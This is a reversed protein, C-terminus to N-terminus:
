TGDQTVRIVEQLTTVGQKVKELGSQRLTKMGSAVAKAKIESATARGLILKQISDNLVLFEYIAERGSYGTGHCADCGEHEYIVTGADFLASEGFDKIMDATMHVAKKCQHCVRRVLRQAILCQVTSTILYSEVGMDLLRAIGSAADNTHLTSFILHGTLAVQIATTATEMDRVEGVMMIDPDHRLMSRLGQAFTLGIAPNIQVQTIGKLQYEIPDEITIIKHKDTNMRSLCTYLTTTKGSGTPGTLFIIGNPKETMQKLIDREEDSLGLEKLSYLKTTNLIRLVISEGCPTPLFSVRLDLDVSGVRVKFRGDQPLRKEAIDLNSLIKVRSSIADQFHRINKPVKADYMVGDIRYRVRLEDVFPEIHIDTANDKYAELLIQNLFKSISAESEIDEINAVEDDKAGVPGATDMMQEITEAGVGYYTRIAELVDKEGVLVFKLRHTVVLSIEDLVHIDLPRGTAVILVDKKLKIPIVKYHIAFQAPILSIVEPLISTSKLNVYDVNLQGALVPLLASEESILGLELLTKGLLRGTEKQRKLAIDLQEQTIVQNEILLQGLLPKTGLTTLANNDAEKLKM